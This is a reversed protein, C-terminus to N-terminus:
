RSPAFSLEDSDSRGSSIRKVSDTTQSMMRDDDQVRHPAMGVDKSPPMKTSAPMADADDDNSSRSHHSVVHVGAYHVGGGLNLRYGQSAYRVVAGQVLGGIDLASAATPMM